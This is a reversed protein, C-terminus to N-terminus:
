ESACEPRPQSGPPIAQGYLDGIQVIGRGMSEHELNNIVVKNEEKVTRVVLAWTSLNLLFSLM